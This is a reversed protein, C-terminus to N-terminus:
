PRGRSDAGDGDHATNIPSTDVSGQRDLDVISANPRPAQRRSIVLGLIVVFGGFLENWGTKERLVVAGLVVGVVPTLYTVSAASTAGWASVINTNWVYALGTGVVGLVIVSTVAQWSPHIPDAAVFPTLMLMIVAGLGVQITAVPVAPLGRPSVFRRLYVFAVGYSATAFLCALQGPISGDVGGRWPAMVIVVGVFGLGLGMGATRSVPESRLAIVGALAAMLPTTANYISALASSVHQEAWAFLSFPVVCLLVSVVALHSWVIAQRPLPERRVACLAILAVAGCVLRGLVVQSASLGTLGVKIFLFSAGWALALVVFQVVVGSRGRRM